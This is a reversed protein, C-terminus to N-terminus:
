TKTVLVKIPVPLRWGHPEQRLDKRHRIYGYQKNRYERAQRRTKFIVPLCDEYILHNYYADLKNNSRWELGWLM